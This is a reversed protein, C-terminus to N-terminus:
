SRFSSSKNGHKKVYSSKKLGDEFDKLFEETYLGMKKFDEIITEIPDYIISEFFKATFKKYAEAQRKLKKYETKQLTIQNM